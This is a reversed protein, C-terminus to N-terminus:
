HSDGTPELILAWADCPELQIPMVQDVTPDPITSTSTETVRHVTIPGAPLEWSPSRAELVAEQPEDTVNVLVIAIRGDRARWAGAQIAAITVPWTGHWQWDATVEPVPASFSPPRAMAGTALFDRLRYRLRAMRRLFPGNVTHRISGPSIWGIQEGFVLSQGAKMRLALDQTPGGRYARGFLQIRGGYVAAFAPVSETYQFHWTLYADFLDLYPEANCETTLVREAGIARRLRELMPRYGAAIWWSGGCLPHGHTRDFCRRPKAAAIQDIYVADLGYETGLLRTCIENVKQQWLPTTPCMPALKRGSGYTEIYPEGQEDKTAARRVEGTFDKLGTDWLRGNIYPMVRVGAAQLEKVGESFGEKAPFYHPYDTDFPIQHWNYWHVAVPVDFYRAFEKVAPVVSQPGGSALAWIATDKIWAPSPRSRKRMWPAKADAWTRYLCAAEFWHGKFTRLRVRGPLTWTNRPRGANPAPWLVEFLVGADTGRLRLDKTAATPDECAAYLGCTADYIACFPMSWWGSPYTGAIRFAPDAPRTKLRGSVHPYLLIDDGGEELSGLRVVPFAVERLSSGEPLAAIALTAMTERDGLGVTSRVELGQASHWRTEIRNAAENMTVTIGPDTPTIERDGKANRLRIRWGGEHPTALRREGRWLGNMTGDKRDFIVATTGKMFGTFRLGAPLQTARPAAGQLKAIAEERDSLSGARGLAQLAAAFLASRAALKKERKLLSRRSLYATVAKPTRDRAFDDPRDAGAWLSFALETRQGEFTVWPGHLYTGYGNRGDYVITPTGVIALREGTGTLAAWGSGRHSSRDAVLAGSAPPDGTEWRSFFDHPVNIELLHLENWRIAETQTIVASVRVVPSGALHEFRYRARPSGPAKRAGGYRAKVEVVARYSGACRLTLRADSDERLFFGKHEPSYVRDNMRFNKFTRDTAAFRIGAPLGGECRAYFIEAHGNDIRIGADNETIRLKRTGAQVRRFGAPPDRVLSLTTQPPLASLTLVGTQEGPAPADYQFPLSSDPSTLISWGKPFTNPQPLDSTAFPISVARPEWASPAADMVLLYDDASGATGSLLSVAAITAYASSIM